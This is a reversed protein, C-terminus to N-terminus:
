ILWVGERGLVEVVHGYRAPLKRAEYAKLQRKMWRGLRDMKLAGGGAVMRKGVCRPWEGLLGEDGGVGAVVDGGVGCGEEDVEGETEEVGAM